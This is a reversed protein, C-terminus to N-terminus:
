FYFFDIIPCIFIDKFIYKCTSIGAGAMTIIKCDPKEKIYKVIGDLSLEHLIRQQSQDTRNSTSLDVLRLKQVLYRRLREMESDEIDSSESSIKQKEEDSKNDLVFFFFKIHLM